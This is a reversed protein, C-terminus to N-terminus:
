EESQPPPTGDEPPVAESNEEPGSVPPRPVDAPATAAPQDDPPIDAGPPVEFTAEPDRPDYERWGKKCWYDEYSWRPVVSTANTEEHKINVLEEAM